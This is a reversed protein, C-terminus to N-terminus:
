EALEADLEDIPQKALHKQVLARLESFEAVLPGSEPRGKPWLQREQTDIEAILREATPLGKLEAQLKRAKDAEDRELHTRIRSILLERRAATDVLVDRTALLFREAGLRSADGTLTVVVERELGAVLPLRALLQGGQKVLLIVLPHDSAPVQVVGNRDSRGIFHEGTIDPSASFVDLGSQGVPKDGSSVIHLRMPERSPTVGLALRERLPHFEPIAPSKLGTELRCSVLPADVKVPWLWTWAIPTVDGPSKGAVLVPRFVTGPQIRPVGADRRTISGARLRIVVAAGDVKEIRALPAFAALAADFALHDLAPPQDCRRRVTTNWLQTAVDYERAAIAIQPGAAAVALLMVKDKKLSESPLDAVAIGEIDGHMAEALRQPAAAVELQWRGGVVTRTRAALFQRLEDARSPPLLPDASAAVFLQIHYPQLEWPPPEEAARAVSTAVSLSLLLVKSIPLCRIPHSM